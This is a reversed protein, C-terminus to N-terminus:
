LGKTSSKLIKLIFYSIQKYASLFNRINGLFLINFMFSFCSNKVIEIKRKIEVIVTIGM